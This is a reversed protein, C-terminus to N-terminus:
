GYRSVLDLFDHWQRSKSWRTHIMKSGQHAITNLMEPESLLMSIHSSLQDDNSYPLFHENPIFDPPYIGYPSLMLAGCGLSEWCRMNGIESNAITTSPNVVIKSKSISEYMELGYCPPLVRNKLLRPLSVFAPLLNKPFQSGLRGWRKFLLHIHFSSSPFSSILHTLTRLRSDHGTSTSYSGAFFLDIPRETNDFFSSMLPDVSPYFIETKFGSKEWLTNLSRFNSLVLDYASLDANALPAARWAFSLQVSKPLKNIFDSPFRIPDCNYFLDPKFYNIQALLIENLDRSPFNHEKAWSFQLLYDDGITFFSDPCQAYIPELIHASGHRDALLLKLRHAFGLSRSAPYRRDFDTLYAKGFGMNQFIKM